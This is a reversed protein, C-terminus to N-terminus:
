YRNVFVGKQILGNNLHSVYFISTAVIVMLAIYGLLITAIMAFSVNKVVEEFVEKKSINALGLKKKDVVILAKKEKKVPVLNNKKKVKVKVKKSKSM